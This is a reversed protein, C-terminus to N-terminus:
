KELKSGVLVLQALLSELQIRENGGEAIRFEVEGTRDVLKVKEIDPIALDFFTRHIQRIIDQGSLGYTIM